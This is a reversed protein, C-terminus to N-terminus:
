KPEVAKDDNYHSMLVVHQLMELTALVLLM